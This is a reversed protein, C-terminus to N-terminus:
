DSQRRQERNEVVACLEAVLGTLRPSVSPDPAGAGSYLLELERALVTGHALNFTGLVGALKHAAAHAAEQQSATLVHTAFAAAAAELVAVRERIEPLFKAWMSDLAKALEGAKKPDDVTAM